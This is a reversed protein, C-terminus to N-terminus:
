PAEVTGVGVGAPLVGFGLALLVGVETLLVGAGFLVADVRAAVGVGVSGAAAVELGLGACVVGLTAWGVIAGLWFPFWFVPFTLAHSVL